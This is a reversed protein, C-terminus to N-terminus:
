ALERSRLLQRPPPPLAVVRKRRDFLPWASVTSTTANASQGTTAAEQRSSGLESETPLTRAPVQLIGAGAIEAEEALKVEATFRYGRKPITEIYSNGDSLKDLDLVRRLTAINQALVGEEVFTESWVRSLLTEKSVVSGPQEILVQLTAVAKPTIRVIAGDRRICGQSTHLEFPGFLYIVPKQPNM